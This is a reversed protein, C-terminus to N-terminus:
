CQKHKIAAELVDAERGLGSYRLRALAKEVTLEQPQGYAWPAKELERKWAGPESEDDIVFNV